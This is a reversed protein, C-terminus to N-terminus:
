FAAEAPAADPEGQEGQEGQEVARVDTAWVADGDFIVGTVLYRNGPADAPPPLRSIIAVTRDTGGASAGRVVGKTSWYPGVQRPTELTALVAIGDAQRKQSTMWMRGLRDLDAVASEDVCLRNFLAAAAAPTEQLGRGSDTAVTELNVLEEALRALQKYWGVLLRDRTAGDADASIAVAEYAEAAQAAATDVASFDLPPLPAPAPPAAVVAPKSLADSLLDDLGQGLDPLPAVPMVAAITEAAPMVPLPSPALDSTESDSTSEAAAAPNVSDGAAEITAPMDATPEAIPEAAATASEEDAPLAAEEVSAPELAPLDDLAPANKLSPGSEAKQPPKFGPQLKAPLLFALQQPMQKGFKFPDKQFGWILIAYTIPLAMLGGLVVGIMQGLGGSNKRPAAPGPAATVVAPVVSSLPISAPDDHEAERLGAFLNLEADAPFLEDGPMAAASFATEISEGDTDAIALEHAIQEDEFDKDEFDKDEFFENPARDDDSLDETDLDGLSEAHPDVMSLIDSREMSIQSDSLIQRDSGSALADAIVAAEAVADADESFESEEVGEFEPPPFVALPLEALAASDDHPGSDNDLGSTGFDFDDAQAHDEVGGDTDGGFNLDAWPDPQSEPSQDPEQEPNQKNDDTTM